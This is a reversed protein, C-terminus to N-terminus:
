SDNANTRTRTQLAMVSDLFFGVCPSVPRTLHVKGSIGLGDNPSINPTGGPNPNPVVGAGPTLGTSTWQYQNAGGVGGAGAWTSYANNFQSADCRIIWFEPTKPGQTPPTKVIPSTENVPVFFPLNDQTVIGFASLVVPKGVTRASQVQAGIWDVTDNLTKSFQSSPPQVNTATGKSGYNVSDPFVQFTGFDIEPINLIDQSDVGFAGNFVSLGDDGTWRKSESASWLGRITVGDSARTKVRRKGLQPLPFLKPCTPCLSGHVGSTILHNCDISRIFKATEAHWRTITNTNCQNSAPLTSACRADNALEWAIIGPENAYRSVIFRVYKKNTYFEDHTKKAGFEQVYADMGGYFNSLYNRPLACSDDPANVTPYWNNTLSFYVYINYEKAFKIITDLRQIGNSGTNFTTNGDKILQLWSGTEPVTNVDNFAWTRVVSIGTKSMNALTNRIDDDSNLYPLWYANTGVFTFNKGHAAFGSGSVTVFESSSKDGGRPSARTPMALASSLLSFLWLALVVPLSLPYMM